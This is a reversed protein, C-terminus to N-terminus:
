NSLPSLGPMGKTLDSLIGNIQSYGRFDSTMGIFDRLARFSEIIATLDEDQYSRDYLSRFMSLIGELNNNWVMQRKVSSILFYEEWNVKTLNVINLKSLCQDKNQSLFILAERDIEKKDLVVLIKEIKEQIEADAVEKKAKLEAERALRSEKEGAEKLLRDQANKRSRQQKKYWLIVWIVLFLIAVVLLAAWVEMGLLLKFSFIGVFFGSISNWFQFITSVIAALFLILSFWTSILYDSVKEELESFGGFLFSFAAALIPFLWMVQTGFYLYASATIAVIVALSLCIRLKEYAQRRSLIYILAFIFWVSIAIAVGLNGFPNIEGYHSYVLRLVSMIVFVKVLNSMINLVKSRMEEVSLYESDFSLNKWEDWNFQEELQDSLIAQIIILASLVTLGIAFTQGLAFIVVAVFFAPVFLVAIARVLFLFLKKM